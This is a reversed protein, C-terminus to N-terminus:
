HMPTSDVLQVAYKRATYRRKSHFKLQFLTKRAQCKSTPIHYTKLPRKDMDAGSQFGCLPLLHIKGSLPLEPQGFFTFTIKQEAM